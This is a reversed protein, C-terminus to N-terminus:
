GFVNLLCIDFHLEECCKLETSFNTLILFSFIFEHKNNSFNIFDDFKAPDFNERILLIPLQKEISCIKSFLICDRGIQLSKCTRQCYSLPRSSTFKWIGEIIVTTTQKIM